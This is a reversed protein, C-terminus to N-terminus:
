DDELRVHASLRSRGMGWSRGLVLLWSLGWVVNWQKLCPNQFNLSLPISFPLSWGPHPELSPFSVLCLLVSTKPTVRQNLIIVGKHIMWTTVTPQTKKFIFNELILKTKKNLSYWRFTKFVMWYGSHSIRQTIRIGVPVRHMPGSSRIM